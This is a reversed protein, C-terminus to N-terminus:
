GGGAGPIGGELADVAEHAAGVEEIELADRLGVAVAVAGSSEALVGEEGAGEHLFAGGEDHDGVAHGPVAVDKIVLNVLHNHRIEIVDDELEGLVEFVAAHELISKDDRHTLEAAGRPDVLGAAAVVVGIGPGEGHGSAAHM